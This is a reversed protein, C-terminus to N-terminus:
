LLVPKKRVNIPPCQVPLQKELGNSIGGVVCAWNDWQGRRSHRRHKYRHSLSRPVTTAAQGWSGGALVGGTGQTVLGAGETLRM